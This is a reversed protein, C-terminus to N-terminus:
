HAVSAPALAFICESRKDGAAATGAKLEETMVNVKQVLSALQTPSAVSISGELLRQKKLFAEMRAIDAAGMTTRDAAGATAPAM